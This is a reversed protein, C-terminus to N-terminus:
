FPSHHRSHPEPFGETCKTGPRESGSWGEPSRCRREGRGAAGRRPEEDTRNLLCGSPASTSLLCKCLSHILSHTFSHMLSHILSHLFSHTFSHTFSSILSHIFSHIFSHTLSHLFSHTFSHSFFYTFSHTLSHILSHIFAHTFSSILSHIFFHILSSILSHILSHFFFRTLFSHTLSHIFSYTFSHIFSNICSHIFAHTFSCLRGPEPARIAKEKMTPDLLCAGSKTRLLGRQLGLSCSQSRPCLLPSGLTSPCPGPGAAQCGRHGQGGGSSPGPGRRPGAQTALCPQLGTLAGTGCHFRGRHQHGPLRAPGVQLGQQRCGAWPGHRPSVEGSIAEKRDGCSAPKKWASM